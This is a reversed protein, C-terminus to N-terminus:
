ELTIGVSKILPGYTKLDAQLQSKLMDPTSVVPDTGRQRLTNMAEPARVAALAQQLRAIVSAPTGAPAMLGYWASAQYGPVGAEAITPVNPLVTSRTTGGIGLALLKGSEIMSLSAPVNTFMMSVRGAMVDTVAPAAGKYTINRIQVGAMSKFKEAALQAPSGNGASAYTLENPHHKAYDILQAVSKAPVKPNVVLINPVDVLLSIPEFSKIPDYQMGSFLFKNVANNSSALLLTYGDPDSQAAYASGINTGAGPKNEVIVSQGLPGSIKQAVVRAVFDAVGGPPWPVVITIPHQPWPDAAYAPSGTLVSMCFLVLTIFRLIM